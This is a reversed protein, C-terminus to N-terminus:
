GPRLSRRSGKDTGNWDLMIRSVFDLPGEAVFATVRDAGTYAGLETNGSAGIYFLGDDQQEVVGRLGPEHMLLYVPRAGDPINRNRWERAEPPNEFFDKGGKPGPLYVSREAADPETVDRLLQALGSRDDRDALLVIFAWVSPAAM